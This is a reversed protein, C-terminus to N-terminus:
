CAENNSRDAVRKSYFSLCNVSSKRFSTIVVKKEKFLARFKLSLHSLYHNQGYGQKGNVKM